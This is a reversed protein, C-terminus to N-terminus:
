ACGWSGPLWGLGVITQCCLCFRCGGADGLASEVPWDAAGSVLVTWGTVAAVSVEGGDVTLALGGLVGSVVAWITARRSGETARTLPFTDLPM